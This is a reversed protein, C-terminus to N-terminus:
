RRSAGSCGPVTPSDWSNLAKGSFKDTERDFDSVGSQHSSYRVTDNPPGEGAEEM